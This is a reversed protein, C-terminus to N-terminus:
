GIVSRHVYWSGGVKRAKGARQWTRRCRARLTDPSADIMTAAVELSVWPSAESVRMAGRLRDIIGDVLGASDRLGLRRLTDRDRELEEAFAELPQEQLLKM